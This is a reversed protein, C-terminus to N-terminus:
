NLEIVMGDWCPNILKTEGITDSQGATEHIHGCIALKPKIREIFKRYDINGVHREDVIDLKCNYAPGHTILVIKKGKYKGYWTRAIKRFQPDLNSFGGGGYALFVYNEIKFDTCDINICNPYEKIVGKFNGDEEHNGPIIYIKKKISNLKKLTNRLGNEFSTFDGAVIVFDIDKKNARKILIDLKASDQHTDSFVLFKM